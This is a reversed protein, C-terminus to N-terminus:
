NWTWAFASIRWKDTGESLAATLYGTRVTQTGGESWRVARPRM